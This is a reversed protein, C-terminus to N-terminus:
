RHFLEPGRDLGVEFFLLLGRVVKGARSTFLGVEPNCEAIAPDAALAAGTDISGRGWGVRWCPTRMAVSADTRLGRRRACLALSVGAMIAVRVSSIRLPVSLVRVAWAAPM